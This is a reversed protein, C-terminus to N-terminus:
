GARIKSGVGSGGSVLVEAGSGSLAEGGSGGVIGGSLAVSLAVRGLVGGGFDTVLM